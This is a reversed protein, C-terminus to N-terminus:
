FQIRTIRLLQLLSMLDYNSYWFQRYDCKMVQAKMDAVSPEMGQLSRAPEGKDSM